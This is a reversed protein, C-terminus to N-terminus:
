FSLCIILHLDLKYVDIILIYYYHYLKFVSFLSSSVLWSSKSVTNVKYDVSLITKAWETYKRWMGMPLSHLQKWGILDASLAGVVFLLDLSASSMM